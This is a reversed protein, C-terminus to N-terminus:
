KESQFKRVAEERTEEIDFITVLKTIVFTNQIGKGMKCLRIRGKDKAYMTYIGVLAGIGMSNLYNVGGLDLILKRNGQEFLDKAAARLENTEDGGLFSGKLELVAVDLNDLTMAKVAVPVEKQYGPHVHFTRKEFPYLDFGTGHKRSANLRNLYLSNFPSLLNRGPLGANSKEVPFRTRIQQFLSYGGFFCSTFNQQMRCRSSRTRQLRLLNLFVNVYDINISVNIFLILLREASRRPQMMSRKTLSRRPLVTYRKEDCKKRFANLDIRSSRGPQPGGKRMLVRGQRPRPVDRRADPGAPQFRFGAPSDLIRFSPHIRRAPRPGCGSVIQIQLIFNDEFLIQFPMKSADPM